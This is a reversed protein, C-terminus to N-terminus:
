NSLIEDEVWQVFEPDFRSRRTGWVRRDQDSGGEEFMARLGVLIYAREPSDPSLERYTWEYAVFIRTTVADVREREAETLTEGNRAAVLLDTLDGHEARSQWGDWSVRMRNFRADAELLENNQRVELALFLIGAIVGVNAVVTLWRNVRDVGIPKEM